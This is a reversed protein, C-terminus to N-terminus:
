DVPEEGAVVRLLDRVEERLEDIGAQRKARAANAEGSSSGFNQKAQEVAVALPVYARFADLLQDYQLGVVESVFDDAFSRVQGESLHKVAAAVVGDIGKLLARSALKASESVLAQAGIHKLDIVLKKQIEDALGLSKILDGITDIGAM